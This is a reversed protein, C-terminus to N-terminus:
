REGRPLRVLGIDVARITDSLANCRLEAIVGM